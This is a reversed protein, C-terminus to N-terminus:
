KVMAKKQLAALPSAGLQPRPAQGTSGPLAAIPPTQVGGTLAGFGGANPTAPAAGPVAPTSSPMGAIGTGSFSGAPSGPTPFSPPTGAGPGNQPMVGGGPLPQGPMLPGGPFYARPGAPAPSGAPATGFPPRIPPAATPTGTSAPTGPATPLPAPTNMARRQRLARTRSQATQYMGSPSAPAPAQPRIPPATTPSPALPNLAM